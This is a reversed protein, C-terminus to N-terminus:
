FSVQVACFNNEALWECEKQIDTWKWEFLHVVVDRRPRCYYKGFYQASVGSVVVLVFVGISQGLRVM